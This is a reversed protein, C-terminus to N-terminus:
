VKAQALFNFVLITNMFGCNKGVFISYYNGNM